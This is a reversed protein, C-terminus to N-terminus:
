GTLGWDVDFAERLMQQAETFVLQNLRYGAIAHPKATLEILHSRELIRLHDSITTRELPILRQLEKLGLVERHQMTYLTIVRAPHSIVMGYQALQRLEPSFLYKKSLPM